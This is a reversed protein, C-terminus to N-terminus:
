SLNSRKQGFLKRGVNVLILEIVVTESNVVSTESAVIGTIVELFKTNIASSL